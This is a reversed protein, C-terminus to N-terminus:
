GRPSTRAIESPSIHCLRSKILMSHSAIGTKWASVLQQRDSSGMSILSWDRNPQECRFIISESAREFVGSLILLDLSIGSQFFNDFISCNSFRSEDGCVQMWCTLELTRSTTFLKNLKCDISTLFRPWERIVIRLCWMNQPAFLPWYRQFPLDM